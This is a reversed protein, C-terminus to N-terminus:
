DGRFRPTKHSGPREAHELATGAIEHALSGTDLTIEYEVDNHDRVYITQGDESLQEFLDLNAQGVLVDIDYVQEEHDDLLTQDNVWWTMQRQIKDDGNFFEEETIPYPKGLGKMHPQRDYIAKQAGSLDYADAEESEIEEATQLLPEAVDEPVPQTFVNNIVIRGEAPDAYDRGPRYEMEGIVEDYLGLDEALAQPSPYGEKNMVRYHKRTKELEAELFQDYRTELLRKTVFYGVPFGGAFGATFLGAYVVKRNKLAAVLREKLM